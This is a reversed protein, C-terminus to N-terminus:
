NTYINLYDKQNIKIRKVIDYKEFIHYYKM